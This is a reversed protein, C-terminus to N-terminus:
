KTVKLRLFKRPKDVEVAQTFSKVTTNPVASTAGVVPSLTVDYWTGDLSYAYQGVVNLGTDDNRINAMLTLGNADSSMVPLAPSSSSGTGGLAYNMLNSLGNAAIVNESGAAYGVGTYTSGSSSASFRLLGDSALSAVANTDEQKKIQALPVGNTNVIYIKAGV